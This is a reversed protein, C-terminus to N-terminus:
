PSRKTRKMLPMVLDESSACCSCTSFYASFSPGDSSKGGAMCRLGVSLTMSFASRCASRLECSRAILSPSAGFRWIEVALLGLASRPSGLPKVRGTTSSAASDWDVPPRLELPWLLSFGDGLGCGCGLCECWLSLPPCLGGGVGGFSSASVVVLPSLNPVGGMLINLSLLVALPSPGGVGGLSRFFLATLMSLANGEGGGDVFWTTAYDKCAQLRTM